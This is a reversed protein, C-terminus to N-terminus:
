EGLLATLARIEKKTNDIQLEIRRNKFNPMQKLLEVQAKLRQRSFILRNSIDILENDTISSSDNSNNLIKEVPM